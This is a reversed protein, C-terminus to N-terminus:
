VIWPVREPHGTGGNHSVGDVAFESPNLADLERSLVEMEGGQNVDGSILLLPRGRPRGEFDLNDGCGNSAIGGLALVRSIAKRWCRRYGIGQGYSRGRSRSLLM